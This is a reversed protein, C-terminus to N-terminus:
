VTRFLLRTNIPLITLIEDLTLGLFNFESVREISTWNMKLDLSLSDVKRQPYHFFMFKTKSANLFLKNVNLWELTFNLEVNINSCVDGLSDHNLSHQSNFSCIPSILNTDEAYLVAKFSNTATHIDKMYIIFSLPGLISGQPVGTSLNIVNSYIGNFM